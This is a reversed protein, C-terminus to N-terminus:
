AAKGGLLKRQFDGTFQRLKGGSGSLLTKYYETQADTLQKNYRLQNELFDSAQSASITQESSLGGSIREIRGSLAEAFANLGLSTSVTMKNIEEEGM